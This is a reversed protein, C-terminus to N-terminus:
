DAEPDNADISAQDAEDDIILIPVNKITDKDYASNIWNILNGIVSQFRDQGDRALKKIIAITVDSSKEFHDTFNSTPYYFDGNDKKINKDPLRTLSNFKDEGRLWKITKLDKIGSGNEGILEKDLRFQTQLRLTDTMGALVVVFRYGISAAKSILHTFNATKGSQVYGIVLGKKSFTELDNPKPFKKIIQDTEYDLANVISENDTYVIDNLYNRHRQYYHWNEKDLEIEDSDNYIGQGKIYIHNTTYFGFEKKCKLLLQTKVEESIDYIEGAI